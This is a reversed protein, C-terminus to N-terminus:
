ITCKNAFERALNLAEEAKAVETGAGQANNKNGGSKGLVVTSLQEAWANATLTGPFNDSVVSVHNVKNNEHDLSILVASRDGLSKIFTSAQILTKTNGTTNIIGCWVKVKEDQFAEKM